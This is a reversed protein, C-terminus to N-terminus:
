YIVVVSILLKPAEHPNYLIKTYSETKNWLQIFIQEVAVNWTNYMDQNLAQSTIFVYVSIIAKSGNAKTLGIAVRLECSKM